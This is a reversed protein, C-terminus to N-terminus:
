EIGQHPTTQKSSNSSSSIFCLMAYVNLIIALRYCSWCLERSFIRLVIGSNAPIVCSSRVRARWHALLKRKKSLLNRNRGPSQLPGPPPLQAGRSYGCPWPLGRSNRSKHDKMECCQLCEAATKLIATGTKIAINRNSPLEPPTNNAVHSCGYLFCYYFFCLAYAFTTTQINWKKNRMESM